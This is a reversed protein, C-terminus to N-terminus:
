WASKICLFNFSKNYNFKDSMWSIWAISLNDGSISKDDRHSENWVGRLVPSQMCMKQKIDKLVDEGNLNFLSYRFSWFVVFICYNIIKEQLSNEVQCVHYLM